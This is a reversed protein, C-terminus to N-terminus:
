LMWPGDPRRIELDTTVDGRGCTQFDIVAVQGFHLKAKKLKVSMIALPVRFSYQSRIQGIRTDARYCGLNEARM